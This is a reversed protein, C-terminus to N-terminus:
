IKRASKVNSTPRHDLKSFCRLVREFRRKNFIVDKYEFYKYVVERIERRINKSYYEFEFLFDEYHHSMGVAVMFQDDELHRIMISMYEGDDTLRTYDFNINHGHYQTSEISQM